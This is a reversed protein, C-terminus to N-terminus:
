VGVYLESYDAYMYGGNELMLGAFTQTLGDVIAKTRESGFLVEQGLRLTEKAIMESSNKLHRRSAFGTGFKWLVM